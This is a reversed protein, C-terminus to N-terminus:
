CAPLSSRRIAPLRAASVSFFVNQKSCLRNMEYIMRLGKLTLDLDVKDIVDTHAAIVPALGGTAIVKIPPAPESATAFMTNMEARIRAVMGEVLAIYGLVIGSQLCAATNKGIAYRPAVLEVRTLLATRQYLADTSISIGPAIAGGMYDGQPSVVDFTTATGFDIILAPGTYCRHTALTNVVRDAGVERPNDTLIRIGTRLGPEVVFLKCKLYSQAMERLSTTLAPVVSSLIAGDIDDLHYGRHELLTILTSGWEDAMRRHETALRWSHALQEGDYLGVVVNTNGVDIALLM